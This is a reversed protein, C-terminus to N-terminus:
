EENFVGKCNDEHVIREFESGIGYPSEISGWAVSDPLLVKDLACVGRGIGHTEHARRYKKKAHSFKGCKPGVALVLFVPHDLRTKEPILIGGMNEDRRCKQIYVNRGQLRLRKVVKNDDDVVVVTDSGEGALVGALTKM